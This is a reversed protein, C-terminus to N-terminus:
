RITYGGDVMLQIGTIYKAADSCLFAVAGQIDEPQAWRKMPTKAKYVERYSEADTEDAVGGPCIANVRINSSALYSAMARTVMNVGGKIFSYAIPNSSMKAQEYAEYDPAVVGWISSINLIVGGGRRKMAEAAKQSIVLMSSGNNALAQNWTDMSTAELSGGFPPTVANNVLIDIGGFDSEVKSILSGISEERTMDLPIHFVKAGDPLSASKEIFAAKSRSAVIVTAGIGALAETVAWGYLGAGGTVIAIRGECSFNAESFM